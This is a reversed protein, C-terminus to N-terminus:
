SAQRFFLIFNSITVKKNNGISFVYRYATLVKLCRLHSSPSTIVPSRYSIIMLMSRSPIFIFYSYSHISVHSTIGGTLLWCWYDGLSSINSILHSNTFHSSIRHSSCLDLHSLSLDLNCSLLSCSM